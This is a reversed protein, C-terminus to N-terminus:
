DINVSPVFINKKNISVNKMINLDHNNNAKSLRSEALMTGATEVNNTNNNM